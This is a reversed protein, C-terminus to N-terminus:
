AVEGLRVSGEKALRVVEVQEALRMSDAGAPIVGLRVIVFLRRDPDAAIRPEWMWLMQRLGPSVPTTRAVRAAAHVPRVPTGLTPAPEAFRILLRRIVGPAM